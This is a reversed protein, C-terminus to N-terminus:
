RGLRQGGAAEYFPFIQEVKRWGMQIIGTRVRARIAQDAMTKVRVL